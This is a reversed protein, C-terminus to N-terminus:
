TVTKSSPLGTVEGTPIWAQAEGEKKVQIWRAERLMVEVSLKGDKTQLDPSYFNNLAVEGTTGPDVLQAYLMKDYVGADKGNIKVTFGFNGAKQTGANRLKVRLTCLSGPAISKAQADAKGAVSVLIDEVRVPPETSKQASVAFSALLAVAWSIE